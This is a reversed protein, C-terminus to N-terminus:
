GKSDDSGVNGDRAALFPAKCKGWRGGYTRDQGHGQNSHGYNSPGQGSPGGRFHGQDSNPGRNGAGRVFERPWNGRGRGRAGKERFGGQVGQTEGVYKGQGSRPRKSM